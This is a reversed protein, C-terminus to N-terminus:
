GVRYITYANTANKVVRFRGTTSASVAMLGVLTNGNASINVSGSGTNIICFEFSTGNPSSTPMGGEINTGTPLTLNITSPQTTTIILTELQAITLTQATAIGTTPSPQYEYAAGSNMVTGAMKTTSTGDSSGITITRTGGSSTGTGINILQTATSFNGTGFNITQSTGTTSNGSFLSVTQSGTPLTGSIGMTVTYANEGIVLATGTGSIVSSNNIKLTKGTTLNWNESTTWNANANDWLITKNTAGLLSIGGGDATTNTPTTVAGLEILKDDVNLTTSNITTTSGNVTLTGTITVNGALTPNGTYLTYLAGYIGTTTSLTGGTTGYYLQKLAVTIDSTDTLDPIYTALTGTGSGIQTAM